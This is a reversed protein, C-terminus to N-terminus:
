YPCEGLSDGHNLHTELESDPVYLNHRRSPKGPPIHCLYTLRSSSGEEGDIGDRGNCIAVAKFNQDLEPEYTLNENVDIWLELLTGGYECEPSLAPRSQFAISDGSAGDQGSNGPDGPAGTGGNPVFANTGDPCTIRAGDQEQQVSCPPPSPASSSSGCGSNSALVALVILLSLGKILDEKFSGQSAM